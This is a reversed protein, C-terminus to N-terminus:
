AAPCIKKLIAIKKFEIIIYLGGGGSIGIASNTSHRWGGAPVGSYDVSVIGWKLAHKETEM